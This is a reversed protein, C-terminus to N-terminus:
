VRAQMLAAIAIVGLTWMSVHLVGAGNYTHGDVTASQFELNGDKCVLTISYGSTQGNAKGVWQCTQGNALTAGACTGADYGPVNV